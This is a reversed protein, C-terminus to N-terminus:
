SNQLRRAYANTLPELDLAQRTM